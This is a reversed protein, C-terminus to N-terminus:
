KMDEIEYEGDKSHAILISKLVRLLREEVQTMTPCRFHSTMKLKPSVFKCKARKFESRYPLESFKNWGRIGEGGKGM